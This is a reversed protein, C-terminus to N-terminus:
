ITKQLFFTKPLMAPWWATSWFTMYRLCVGWLYSLHWDTNVHIRQLVDNPHNQRQKLWQVLLFHIPSVYPHQIFWRGDYQKILGTPPETVTRRCTEEERPKRPTSLVWHSRSVTINDEAYIEEVLFNILKTDFLRFLAKYWLTVNVSWNLQRSPWGWYELIFSQLWLIIVSPPM